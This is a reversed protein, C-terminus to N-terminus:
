TKSDPSSLVHIDALLSLVQRRLRNLRGLSLWAAMLIHKGARCWCLIGIGLGKPNFLPLSHFPDLTLEGKALSPRGGLGRRERPHPWLGAGTM